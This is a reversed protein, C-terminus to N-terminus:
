PAQSEDDYLRGTAAHVDHDASLVTRAPVDDTSAVVAVPLTTVDVHTTVVQPMVILAVVIPALVIPAVVIPAVIVSAKVVDPPVRVRNSPTMGAGPSATVPHPMAVIPDPHAMVTRHPAM